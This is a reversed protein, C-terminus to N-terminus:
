KIVVIRGTNLVKGEKSIKIFYVGYSNINNFDIISKENTLKGSYIDNGLLNYINIDSGSYKPIDIMEINITGTTPNPFINLDHYILYNDNVDAFDVLFVDSMESKCENITVQVTYNGNEKPIYNQDFANAIEKGELFWQNGTASGSILINNKVTISPKAPITNINVTHIITDWCGTNDTTQLLKVAGIGTKGWIVEVTAGLSDGNIIGGNSFWHNSIGTKPSTSFTSPVGECANYSGNVFPQPTSLISIDISNSDKCGSLNNTQIIKINGKTSKNWLIMVSDKSINKTITGGTVNWLSKVNGASKSTYLNESYPCVNIIGSISDPKPKSSITVNNTLTSDCGTDIFTQTVSITGAGANNWQIKVMENNLISAVKGGTVTWDNKLGSTLPSKYVEMSGDCVNYNGQMTPSPIPYITIDMITSDSCGTVSNQLLKIKGKTSNGWDIKIGTSDNRSLLTGGNLITWKNTVGSVQTTLYYEVSNICVSSKGYIFPSLKATILLDTGNDKGITQPIDAIVRIRYKSGSPLTDPLTGYITGSTGTYLDGLKTPSKFNGLTDSIQATFTNNSQFTALATYSIQIPSGACLNGSISNIIIGATTSFTFVNSWQSTSGTSTKANVRWYYRNNLILNSAPTYTTTTIGSQNVIFSSFDSVTSLQFTYSTALAFANWNFSTNLAINASGDPPTLLTPITINDFNVNFSITNGASTVNSINLYGASGSSLFCSPDTVNNIAIRSVDSSFNANAPTGNASTTGGPRYLYVEDPPGNANGKGDQATNIRYVLLGSGPISSEFTGTKHRYEVVFYETTSNPSKIKYCNNTSSTVPHLTYTGSATIEPLSSIWNSYKYKMYMGMSQPPDATNEMLDWQYVTSLGDYSYHYLDPYSLTHCMEHCLVGNSTMSRIQFNYDWVRKGNINVTQSYLSWMHPWLLSAWADPTGTIIFCVNDVYGDNDNDINLSSSIQGSVSNVANRLLMHERDRSQTSNQYGIPNTTADYPRYYNRPNNDQYSLVTSGTPQPYFTTSVNLTSYSAEQFFAKMSNTGAQNFMNDFTSIQDSFESEDSFRIFIVINNITGTTNVLMQNQNNKGDLAPKQYYKQYEAIKQRIVDSSVKLWTTLGTQAPIIEDAKYISPALNEGQQQAYYYFGNNANRIITFGDKDHLWNYYEDGSAFCHIVKGDPQNIKMPVFRLYASFVSSSILFLTTIFVIFKQFKFSYYKETKM